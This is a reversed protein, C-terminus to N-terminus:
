MDVVKLGTPNGSLTISYRCSGAPSSFIFFLMDSYSLFSIYTLSLGQYTALVAVPDPIISIGEGSVKPHFCSFWTLEMQVECTGCQLKMSCFTSQSEWEGSSRMRARMRM